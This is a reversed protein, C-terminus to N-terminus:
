RVDIMDGILLMRYKEIGERLRMLIGAALMKVENEEGGDDGRTNEFIQGVWDQTEIVERGHDRCLDRMRSENVDLLALVAFLVAQTLGLDGAAHARVSSGLLLSWLEITMDPLSLTSPGAAHLILALTKLFVSLLYPQFLVGHARSISSRTAAQFRATLPYFMATSLLEAASNPIVKVVPGAKKSAVSDNTSSAISSVRKLRSSYTSLKLADPGTASDAATAAIPALFDSTVTKAVHDLANPPLAKLNSTSSVQRSPQGQLYLREVKAPLTKSPFSAAAAYRSQEHGGLERASLGLAVLISVRQSISYDGDFFTKAFWAGMKRPSAYIVAIMGQLRLDDFGEIEYKDQMGVLLSALEEIHDKVETGYDKKRRILAAATTLALKQHDYNETDRIYRILDRVYIPAKPKDRRVLTPDEDSDEADSDPKGYVPLDDDDSEDGDDEEIIFGSSRPQSPRPIPATKAKLRVEAKPEQMKSVALLQSLNSAMDDQVHVLSKYWSGEESNTEAMHFDLKKERNDALGSLAEGVVMGLWRARSQSSGLRNSIANLWTSSRLTLALKAPNMRHVYGAALLLVQAHAIIETLLLAKTTYSTPADVL